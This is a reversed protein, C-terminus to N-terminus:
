YKVREIKQLKKISVIAPSVNFNILNFKILTYISIFFSLSGFVIFKVIYQLNFLNSLIYMPFVVIFSLGFIKLLHKYPLLNKIKIKTFRSIQYLQLMIITIQTIVGSLTAGEMGLVPVLILTCIINVIITILMNLIIKKQKGM